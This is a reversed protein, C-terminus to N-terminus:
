QRVQFGGATGGSASTQNGFGQLVSQSQPSYHHTTGVIGATANNPCTTATPCTFVAGGMDGGAETFGGTGTKTFNEVSAAGIDTGAGDVQQYHARVLLVGPDEIETACPFPTSTPLCTTTAFPIYDPVAAVNVNSAKALLATLATKQGGTTATVLRLLSWAPYAGSRVNPYSYGGTWINYEPCPFGNTASCGAVAKLDNFGPINGAGVQALDYPKGTSIQNAYTSFIPDVGNLTIYNFKTNDALDAVNGFSFFAYALGDQQSNFAGTQGAKFGTTLNSNFVGDVSEGTGISRYRRGGHTGGCPAVSSDGLPNHSGVGTEQSLGLSANPGASLHVDPGRFVTAETTNMTGSTPERLFINMGGVTAAGLASSDCNTGSFAQQLQASTADTVGALSNQAGTLFVIPTVGVNIVSYAPIPNGTIPDTGTISFSIPNAADTAPEGPLGSKVASGVYLSASALDGHQPCVGPSAVNSNYGLGDLGDSSNVGTGSGLPSNVRCVAWMADEPRIDTAATKVTVGNELLTVVAPPLAIDTTAAGSVAFLAGNIKNSGAGSLNAASGTITCSPNAFFCRDGIVSDVKLFLWVETPTCTSTGCNWVAWLTGADNNNIGGRNDNVNIVNSASTWHAHATSTASGATYFAGVALSQWQASSGAISVEVTTTASALPVIGVIAALVVVAFMCKFRSM